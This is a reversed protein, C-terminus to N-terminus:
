VLIELKQELLSPRKAGVVADQLDRRRLTLHDDVHAAAILKFIMM